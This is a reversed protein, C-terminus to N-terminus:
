AFPPLRLRGPEKKAHPFQSMAPGNRRRLTGGDGCLLNKRKLDLWSDQAIDLDLPSYHQVVFADNSAGIAYM